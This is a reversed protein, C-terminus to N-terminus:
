DNGVLSHHSHKAENYIDDIGFKEAVLHFACHPIWLLPAASSMADDSTCFKSSVVHPAPIEQVLCLYTLGVMECKVEGVPGSCYNTM